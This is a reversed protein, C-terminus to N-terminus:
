MLALYTMVLVGEAVIAIGAARVHSRAAAARPYGLLRRRRHAGLTFVGVALVAVAAVVVLRGPAQLIDRDRLLVLVGSAAIALATRTWALATREAQLGRDEALAQRTM